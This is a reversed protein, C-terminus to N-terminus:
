DNTAREETRAAWARTFDEVLDTQLQTINEGSAIRGSRYDIVAEVLRRIGVVQAIAKQKPTM